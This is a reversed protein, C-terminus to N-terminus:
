EKRFFENFKEYNNVLYSPLEMKFPNGTVTTKIRSDYHHFNKGKSMRDVLYEKNNYRDNDLTKSECLASIKYSVRDVGGIYCFHWGANDIWRYKKRFSSSYQPSRRKLNRYSMVFPGTWTFDPFYTNFYYYFLTMRFTYFDNGIDVFRNYSKFIDAKIIEDVDSVIISDDNSCGVLGNMISNRQHRDRSWHDETIPMDDVIVHKIKDLFKSFLEKNENFYLPKEKGSFTKNAEVLVFRDIFPSHENLRIELLELENFFLFCDYLM